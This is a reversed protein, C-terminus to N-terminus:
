RRQHQWGASAFGCQYNALNAILSVPWRGRGALPDQVLHLQAVVRRSNRLLQRRLNVPHQPALSCLGRRPNLRAIVQGGEPINQICNANEEAPEAAAIEPCITTSAQAARPTTEAGM